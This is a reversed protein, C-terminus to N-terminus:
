QIVNTNLLIIVIASFEFISDPRRRAQKDAQTAGYQCCTLVAVTCTVPRALWGSGASLSDAQAQKGANRTVQKAKLGIAWAVGGVAVSYAAHPRSCEHVPTTM